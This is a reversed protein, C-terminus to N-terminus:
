VFWSGWVWVWRLSSNILYFGKRPPFPPRAAATLRPPARGAPAATCQPLKRRPPVVAGPLRPPPPRRRPHRSGYDAAGGAGGRARTSVGHPGAGREKPAAMGRAPRPHTQAGRGRGGSGGDMRGGGGSVAQGGCTGAEGHLDEHLSERPFGDGELHPAGAARGPARAPKGDPPQQEQPAEAPAERLEEHNQKGPSMLLCFLNQNRPKRKCYTSGESVISFTFAFIWSLSPLNSIRKRPNISRNSPDSPDQRCSRNNCFAM